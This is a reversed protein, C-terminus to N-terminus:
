FYRSPRGRDSAPKSAETSHSNRLRSTFPFASARSNSLSRARQRSCPKRTWCPRCRVSSACCVMRYSATRNPPPEHWRPSSRCQPLGAFPRPPHPDSPRAPACSRCPQSVPEGFATHLRHHHFRGPDEFAETEADSTSKPNKPRPRQLSWGVARLAEWGRQVAVKELGLQEALYAAVKGSSWVGGDSPADALRVRLKDLVAPTLITASRGNRRRLDGLADPGEANYRELLQHVWREGFAMTASVQAATHGQALLWIAQVHRATTADSCAKYREELASVSLHDSVKAV